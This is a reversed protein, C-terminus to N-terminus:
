PLLKDNKAIVQDRDRTRAGGVEGDGLNTKSGRWIKCVEADSEGLAFETASPFM